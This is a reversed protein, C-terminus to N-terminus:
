KDKWLTGYNDLPDDQSDTRERSIIYATQGSLLGFKCLRLRSEGNTVPEVALYVGKYNGDLFSQLIVILPGNLYIKELIIHLGTEFFRRIM